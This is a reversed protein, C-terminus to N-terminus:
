TIALNLLAQFVLFKALLPSNWWKCSHTSFYSFERIRWHPDNQPTIKVIKWLKEMPNCKSVRRLLRCLLICRKPGKRRGPQHKRCGLNTVYAKIGPEHDVEPTIWVPTSDKDDTNGSTLVTNVQSCIGLAGHFPFSPLHLPYTQVCLSAYNTALHLAWGSDQYLCKSSM